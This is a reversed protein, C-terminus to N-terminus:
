AASTSSEKKAEETVEEKKEETKAEEATKSAEATKKLEAAAAELNKVKTTAEQLQVNLQDIQKQLEAKEETLKTEAAKAKEVETNRFKRIFEISIKSILRVSFKSQM